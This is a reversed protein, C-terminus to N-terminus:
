RAYVRWRVTTTDYWADAAFGPPLVIDGGGQCLLRNAAASGADETTLTIDFSGVNVFLRRAGSSEAVVGTISWAADASLRVIGGAGLSYDNVSATLTSPTVVLDLGPLVAAWTADAKLYKSAAADGAAPAPALGKTGGAGSDGVLNDLIATAQTATLDVPAGTGAGAARGKITSQAMNALKANTVVGADITWVTGSVTVTIDGKDGDLVAGGLWGGSAGAFESGLFFAIATATDGATDAEDSLIQQISNLFERMDPAVELWERAMEPVRGPIRRTDSM